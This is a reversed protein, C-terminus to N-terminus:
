FSTNVGVWVGKYSMIAEGRFETNCGANSLCIRNRWRLAMEKEGGRRQRKRVNVKNQQTNGLNMKGLCKLWHEEPIEIFCSFDMLPLPGTLSASPQPHHIPLQPPSHTHLPRAPPIRCFFLFFYFCAFTLCLTFSQLIVEHCCGFTGWAWDARDSQRSLSKGEVTADESTLSTIATDVTVSYKSLEISM